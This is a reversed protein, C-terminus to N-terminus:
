VADPALIVIEVRRSEAKSSKAKAPGFSAVYMLDKSVGRSALYEEVALAREAGLRENTKWGSKRIPDSDTHGAIRIQANPYNRLINQAIQDLARKSDNKLSVKGSSFLVDGAVEVVIEGPRRFVEVDGFDGRIDGGTAPSSSPGAAAAAAAALQSQLSAVESSLNNREGLVATYRADCDALASDLNDREARLQQNESTLAAIQEDKTPGQQCGTM